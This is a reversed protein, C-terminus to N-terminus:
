SQMKDKLLTVEEDEPQQDGYRVRYYLDLLPEMVERSMHAMSARRGKGESVSMQRQLELEQERPTLSSQQSIGRAEDLQQQRRYLYRIREQNDRLKDWAEGQRFFRAAWKGAWQRRNKGTRGRMTLRVEEDEYEQRVPEVASRLFFKKLNRLLTSLAPGAYKYIGYGILTIALLLLAGALINYLIDFLQSLWGPTGNDEPLVMGAPSGPPSAPEPEPVPEGSPRLLWQVISRLLGLLLKGAWKGAGTALLLGIALISVVWVVNYRRVGKPVPSKGPNSSLSNYELYERNTIFLLLTLALIGGTTVIPMYEALQDLRPFVIGAIFYIAIGIWYLKLRNNRGPATIAQMALISGFVAHLAPHGGSSFVLVAYGLGLLCATLVQKWRVKLGIMYGAAGLLSVVPLLYVARVSYYQPVIYAYLPLMLPLFFLAEILATTWGRFWISMGRRVPNPNNM